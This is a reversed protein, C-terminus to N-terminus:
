RDFNLNMQNDDLPDILMFYEAGSKMDGGYPQGKYEAGLYEPLYDLDCRVGPNIIYGRIHAWLWLKRKFKKPTLWNDKPFLDLYGWTTNGRKGMAELKDIKEGFRLAQGNNLRAPKFTEDAWEMFRPGVESAWRRRDVRESDAEVIGGTQFYARCCDALVSFFRNKEDTGWDDWLLHGFNEPDSPQRQWNYFDSYAIARFRGRSSGHGDLLNFNSTIVGLPSDEYEFKVEEKHMGRVGFQGTIEPYHDQINNCRDYDDFHILATRKTVGAYRYINRKLDQRGNVKFINLVNSWSLIDLSLDKGSRGESRNEDVLIGEMLFPWYNADKSRFKRLIHGYMTLRALLHQQVDFRQEITLEKDTRWHFNSTNLLFELFESQEGEETLDVVWRGLNDTFLKVIEPKTFQRIYEPTIQTLEFMPGVYNAEHPILTEDWICGPLDKIKTVRVGPEKTVMWVGNKFPFFKREKEDRLDKPDMYQLNSFVRTGLYKEWNHLFFNRVQRDTEANDRLFQTVYDRIEIPTVERVVQNEIHIYSDVGGPKHYRFFGRRELFLHLAVDDFVISRKGDRKKEIYFQEDAAMPQDLVLQKGKFKYYLAGLRFREIKMAQIQDRYREAFRQNNELSWIAQIKEDTLSTLDYFKVYQHSRALAGEQIIERMEDLTVLGSQVLDDPGKQDTNQVHALLINLRRGYAAFKHFHQRFNIAATAFSRVRNQIYGDETPKGLDFIDGDVFFIVTEIGFKHIVQEYQRPLGEHPKGLGHVGQIGISPVVQCLLDAKKQGEPIVLIKSSPAPTNYDEILKNPLWPRQGVGSPGVCKGGDFPHLDPYQFRCFVLPRPKANASQSYTMQKRDLDVYYMLMDDKDNVIKWKDRYDLSGKQYRDFEPWEVPQGKEEGLVLGRQMELTIGSEALNRDRFSEPRSQPKQRVATAKTKRTAKKKPAPEAPKPEAPAPAKARKAGRSKKPPAPPEQDTLHQVGAIEAVRVVSEPFDVGDMKQVLDFVSPAEGCHFCKITQKGKSINLGQGAGCYPCDTLLQAGKKKLQFYREAVIEVPAEDRIRDITATEFHKAM